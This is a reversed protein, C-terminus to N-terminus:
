KGPFKEKLYQIYSETGLSKGTVKKILDKPSYLAGHRHINEKLWAELFSLDGSAIKKDWDSHSKKICTFLEAALLNGLAYTPFYGIGGMAWHIDQLCGEADDKPTIGLSEQMKQNWLSPIEKVKVSGDILGMEIEFRLIVHLCYTVEDAEVRITSPEVKNIDKYFEELSIGSLNQPFTRQLKPYFYTWFPLGQGIITEYLRSQSEDVGFSAHNCVPSGYHEQPLNKNYLGHGGEHIISSISYMPFEEDIRTTMRTDSPHLGSCFPHFSTDLRSIKPSFGLIKQLDDGLQKQKDASFTGLPLPPIKPATHLIEILSKKLEKFLPILDKSTMGPEYLDVLADYPHDKYGLYSAKKRCLSVMNELHPAFLSFNNKEKAGIWAHVSTSSLTTFKKVFTIPLKEDRLLNKRWHKAAAEIHLPEQSKMEGTDLDILENLLKKFTKSTASKHIIESLVELQESRATIAGEPMYTEQDWELLAGAASLLTTKKSLLFLKEYPTKAM